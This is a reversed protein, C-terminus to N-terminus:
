KKINIKKLIINTINDITNFKKVFLDNDTFKIKYKSEVQIILKLISVSDIDSFRFIDKKNINALNKKKFIKIKLFNRIKEKQDNKM